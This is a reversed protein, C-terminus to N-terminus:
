RMRRTASLLQATARDHRWGGGIFSVGHSGKGGACTGLGGVLRQSPDRQYAPSYLVALAVRFLDGVFSRADDHRREGNLGFHGRFVRWAAETLNADRDSLLDDSGTERPVVVSGREHVHLNVLTTAFLPRTESTKRPEPVAILFENDSLNADFEPRARNLWKYRTEYYIWREDFPFTLFPLLNSESFGGAGKVNRWAREPDYGARSEAIGPAIAAADEFSESELYSKVRERLSAKEGDIVAGEVGRNHNM